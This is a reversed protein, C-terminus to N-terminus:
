HSPHGATPDSHTQNGHSTQHQHVNPKFPDGSKSPNICQMPQTSIKSEIHEAMVKPISSAHKSQQTDATRHRRSRGESSSGMRAMSSGNDHWIPSSDRKPLFFGIMTAEHSAPDTAGSAARLHSKPSNIMEEPGIKQVSGISQDFGRRLHTPRHATPSSPAGSSPAGITC